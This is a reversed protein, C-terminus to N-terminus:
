HLYQLHHNLPLQYCTDVFLLMARGGTSAKEMASKGLGEVAKVGTSHDIRELMTTKRSNM